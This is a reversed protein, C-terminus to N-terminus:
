LAARPEAHGAQAKLPHQVRFGLWMRLRGQMLVKVCVKTIYDRRGSRDGAGGPRQQQEPLAALVVAAHTLQM